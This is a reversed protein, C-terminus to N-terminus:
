KRYVMLIMSNSTLLKLNGNRATELRNQLVSEDLQGNTLISSDINSVTTILDLQRNNLELLRTVTPNDDLAAYDAKLQNLMQDKLQLQQRYINRNDFDQQCLKLNCAAALKICNHMDLPVNLIVRPLGLSPQVNYIHYDSCKQIIEKLHSKAHQASVRALNLETLKTNVANQLLAQRFGQASGEGGSMALIHWTAPVLFTGPILGPIM